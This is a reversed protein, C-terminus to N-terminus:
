LAHVFFSKVSRLQFPCSNMPSDQVSGLLILSNSHHPHATEKHLMGKAAYLLNKFVTIAM